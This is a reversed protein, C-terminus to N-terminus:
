RFDREDLLIYNRIGDRVLSKEIQMQNVKNTAILLIEKDKKIALSKYECVKIDYFIEPNNNRDSIAVVDPLVNVEKMRNIVKEAVGGAGYLIIRNYKKLERIDYEDFLCKKWEWINCGSISWPHSSTRGNIDCYCCFPIPMSLFELIEKGTEAKYIDICDKEGTEMDINFKHSFHEANAAVTCTYLKGSKLQSCHNAHYCNVFNKVKDQKGSIDFPVHILEKDKDVNEEFVQVITGFKESKEHIEKKCKLIGYDTYSVIIKNEGCKKWFSDPQNNLLLGNTVIRIMAEQFNTRAIVIFKDIEPHLLPEGGMLEIIDAEGNLLFSLREFDKTFEVIDALKPIAIPSCHDCGKCNLNCHDAIHYVFNLKKRPILKNNVKECENKKIQINESDYGMNKSVDEYAQLTEIVNLANEYALRYADRGVFITKPPSEMESLKILYGALKNPDGKQKQNAKKISEYKKSYIIDYMSDRDDMRVSNDFFDTRFQGPVISVVKIDWPEVEISLVRSLNDLAAKSASYAASGGWACYGDISAINLIFGSKNERMTPLVGRIFRFAGMFNVDFSDMLEKESLDEVTGVQEYGANNVLVDISGFFSIAKNIARNVSESDTIDVQLPFFKGENKVKIKEILMEPTRSTAIVCNGTDLVSQTLILGLGSSAGTILWTKKM